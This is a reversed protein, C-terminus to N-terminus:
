RVVETAAVPPNVIVTVVIKGDVVDVTAVGGHKALGSYLIEKSLPKKVEEAFLRNFPRAGMAKDYGHESLWLRAKISVGVKVNKSSLTENLDFITRDVIMGMEDMGLSNFEIIADLRNRFEPTFMAKVAEGIRGENTTNNFGISTKEAEAAGANSTMIFIVDQFLAEKGDGGTLRGDDMVQLLVNFVDPHAKEIEDLLLVCAPHDNIAAILQGSGMQGESHGVYGPPAGIFKSVSHKEMYESMDFKKLPLGLKDALQRCVETKGCGTPGAFLFSGIPKNAERLGSKALEIADALAEIPGDQGFVVDKMRPRLAKIVSNEELDIMEEPIKSLKAVRNVILPVDVLEVETLKAKAGADDMLDIAKDPFFKQKMYRNALEVCADLAKDTYEIGHFEEYYKSLGALILRTDSLSPQEIDVRRFRRMLARDKEINDHFEDNTTAGVCSLEGKALMPKLINGADMSSNGTAGAGIIMHIEDIFLIVNGLAKIEALVGKLRDEFEGRYKTGAIMAGLDLSYVVKDFLVEPVEREVIKRAIGEAIATKGVGERGVLMANNKKRKSLIEVIDMIEQERGIVPDIRGDESEKNLDTCFQELLSEEKDGAVVPAQEKLAAIIKERTVDHRKLFYCAHSQEESLISVLIGVVNLENRGSFMLQTFARQFVRNVATTKKPTQEGVHEPLQHAPDGLHAILDQKIKAPQVGISHLLSQIEPDDLLAWTLHEVLFYEHRNDHALKIASDIIKEIRQDAM